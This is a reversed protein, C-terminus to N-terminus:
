NLSCVSEDKQVQGGKAPEDPSVCMERANPSFFAINQM